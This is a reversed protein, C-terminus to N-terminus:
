YPARSIWFNSVRNGCLLSFRFVSKCRNLNSLLCSVIETLIILCSTAERSFERAVAFLLRENRPCRWRVGNFLLKTVRIKVIRGNGTKCSIFRHLFTFRRWISSKWWCSHITRENSAYRDIQFEDPKEFIESDHNASGLLCM